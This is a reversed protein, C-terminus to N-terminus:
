EIWNLCNATECNGYTHNLPKIIGVHLTKACVPCVEEGYWTKDAHTEKLRTMIPEIYAFFALVETVSPSWNEQSSEADM